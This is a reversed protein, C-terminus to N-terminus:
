LYKEQIVAITAPIDRSSVAEGIAKFEWSNKTRVLKGMVMAVSGAFSKDNALNFTAMVEKVTQKNGEFIRIKSYPISKFDQRHYSTLYFVIQTVEPDIKNLFLQIVENDYGDDGNEDGIRDDGSHIISQNRSKLNMYYVTELVAGEANFTSVSGDLDVQETDKVLGFLFKKQISGWNLGICVEELRNGEKELSITSGKKLNIGTKKDLSISM